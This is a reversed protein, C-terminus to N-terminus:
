APVLEAAHGASGHLLILNKEEGTILCGSGTGRRGLGDSVDGCLRRQTSIEAREFGRGALRAM